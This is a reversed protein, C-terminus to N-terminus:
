TPSRTQALSGFATTITKASGNKPNPPSRWVKGERDLEHKLGGGVELGVDDM